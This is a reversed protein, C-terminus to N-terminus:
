HAFARATMASAASFSAPDVEADAGWTVVNSALTALVLIAAGSLLVTPNDWWAKSTEGTTAVQVGTQSQPPAITAFNNAPPAVTAFSRARAADPGPPKHMKMRIDLTITLTEAVYLITPPLRGALKPSTFKARIAPMPNGSDFAVGVAVLNPPAGVANTTMLNEYTVRNTQANWTVKGSNVLQVLANDTQHKAALEFGTNTFTLLDIQKDVWIYIQGTFKAEFEFEASEGVIPPLLELNYKFAFSNLHTRDKNGSLTPFTPPRSPTQPRPPVPVRPAATETAAQTAANVTPRTVQAPHRFDVNNPLHPPHESVRPPLFIRTGVRLKNPDKLTAVRGHRRTANYAFIQPWLSARGFHRQAIASLSDGPKIIYVEVGM